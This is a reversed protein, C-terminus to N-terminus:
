GDHKDHRSFWTELILAAAISDVDSHTSRRKRQGSQRMTRIHEQAASSTYREDIFHVPRNFKKKLRKAFGRVHDCLSQEEGEETLPWGVILDSPRWQEVCSQILDWDPTGNRNAAVTLPRASSLQQEGVAMGIHKTGYDFGLCTGTHQPSSNNNNEDHMAQIGSWM